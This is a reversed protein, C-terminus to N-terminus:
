SGVIFKCCLVATDDLLDQSGKFEELKSFIIQNLENMKKEFNNEVVKILNDTEFALGNSNELEVLGDTSCVLISDETLNIKCLEIKPIEELM